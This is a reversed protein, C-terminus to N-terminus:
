SLDAGPDESFAELSNEFPTLLHALLANLTLMGAETAYLHGAGETLLGADICRQVEGADAMDAFAVGTAAELGALDLGDRTRLGTMVMEEARERVDLRREKATGQGTEGVRALWRAPDHIQHTAIFGDALTLRGHAGPGVGVYDRGHWYALNHRSEGGPRAHNSVEYAPMSAETLLARTEHFLDAALDEEAGAVGDRFFPTGPEITLQYVSLHDGALALAEHLEARWDAATQGPLGYILDFSYREFRSRAWELARRAQDADHRRGLFTLAEPRLSQVGISLRNIGAARYGDFREAEASSPNSELTIEPDDAFGWLAGAAEVLASVTAADMLSPTGGGFYLSGVRRGATREAFHRLESLLAHRWAAHDVAETVHSNFDCYPCKSECFPWHVYVALPTDASM